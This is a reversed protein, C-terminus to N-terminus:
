KLTDAPLRDIEFMLKALSQGAAELLDQGIAATAQAADGAAGDANYDQMQWALKASRGNGLIEFNQARQEASSKFRKAKDLQVAHPKLAL